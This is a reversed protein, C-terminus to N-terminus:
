DKLKQISVITLTRLDFQFLRNMYVYEINEGIRGRHEGHKAAEKALDVIWDSFKQKKDSRIIFERLLHEAADDVSQITVTVLDTPRVKDREVEKGSEDLNVLAEVELGKALPARKKRREIEEKALEEWNRGGFNLPGQEKKGFAMWSLYSDEVESLRLGKHKGFTLQPDIEHSM